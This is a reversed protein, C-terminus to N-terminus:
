LATGGSIDTDAAGLVHSLSSTRSPCHAPTLGLTTSTPQGHHTNMGELAVKGVLAHVVKKVEPFMLITRTERCLRSQIEQDGELSQIPPIAQDELKPNPSRHDQLPLRLEANHLLIDVDAM